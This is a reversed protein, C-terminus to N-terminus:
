FDKRLWQAILQKLLMETSLLIHSMTEFVRQHWPSAPLAEMKDAETSKFRLGTTQFIQKSKRLSGLRCFSWSTM